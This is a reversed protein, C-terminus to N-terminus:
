VKALSPGSKAWTVQALSQDSKPGVEEVVAPGIEEVVAPGIEKM